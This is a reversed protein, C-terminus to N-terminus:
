QLKTFDANAFSYNNILKKSEKKCLEFTERTEKLLNAPSYMSYDKTNLCNKLKESSALKPKLWEVIMLESLIDIVEDDITQNFQKLNEDRDTLDVKCVRFFKACSSVLYSNLIEEREIDSFKPLDYDSIKNIFINVVASYPTAMYFDVGKL